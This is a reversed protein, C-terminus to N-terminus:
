AYSLVERSCRVFSNKTCCPIIGIHSREHHLDTEGTGVIKATTEIRDKKITFLAVALRSRIAVKIHM